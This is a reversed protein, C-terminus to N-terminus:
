VPFSGVHALSFERAWDDLSSGTHAVLLVDSGMAGCGKSGFVHKVDKLSRLAEESHSALLGLSALADGYDQLGKALYTFDGTRFSDVTSRALERLKPMPLTPPRKHEHTPLKKGTHFLSLLGKTNRAPLEDCTRQGFNVTLFFHETRNVGYAQTFIDAGSGPFRRSSQWANWAFTQREGPTVPPEKGAFWAALFEAGSGGFGGKSEHPDQFGIASQAPFEKLWLGAPSEPHFAAGSVGYTARFLPPHAILLADVDGRDLVAYEGVLFTKSPFSLSKM